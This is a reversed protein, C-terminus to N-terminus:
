KAVIAIQDVLRCAYGWENDYWALVKVLDGDVVRTSPLDVIASFSSGIIDSSVIPDDTVGLIGKYRPSKAAGRLLKNIEEATTPRAVLLTFDTVSGTITPVRIAIGDFKNRLDAIVETVSVAAGTSTPVINQAAARARRLDKHPGDQLNQDATYAHVTTMMAKKIGIGEHIVQAVPALCNTTCSANSIVDEDQYDKQNVGLLFTKIGGAGKVPASVIVRRAGAAIHASAAGDKTFRGTCELVVDVKMDKWPLAQPEKIALVPVKKKDVVIHNDEWSVDKEYVGYATDYKLLHALTRADTLDNVAVVEMGKREEMIKYAARGIRGFGNIAVRIKM